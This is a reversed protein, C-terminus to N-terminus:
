FLMTEIIMGSNSYKAISHTLMTTWTTTSKWRVCVSANNRTTLWYFVFVVYKPKSTACISFENQFFFSTSILCSVIVISNYVYIQMIAIHDLPPKYLCVYFPLIHLTSFAEGCIYQHCPYALRSRCVATDYLVRKRAVMSQNFSNIRSHYIINFKNNNTFINYPLTISSFSHIFVSLHIKM